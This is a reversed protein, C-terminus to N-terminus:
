WEYMARARSGRNNFAERFLSAASDPADDPTAGERYDTVQLVYEEDTDPDWELYPWVNYLQASIKLHKNMREVYTKVRLGKGKLLDATFGKDPNTEVYVAGVRYKRCLRTIECVWDKVNGPYAFGIIQYYQNEGEKRTPAAITLACYHDGDYAADVHALAGSRSYDWGSSYVPDSFLAAEDSGISLEYNAQYLFPTTTLRKKEAKEEAIFNYQSLPYKAIPCFNQIVSWADDRHWPTGIWANGKGPEIINTQIERVMEKTREREARSIRDKLTIIDDCIIKDFHLGTIGSDLGLGTISAEPTDTDKFSYKLSGERSIEPRPYAGHALKFLAQIEEREMVGAIARVVDAAAMFTKRIIAIRDNPHFLMWTVSGILTIATTKYGGRFAQLARPENSDWTYKIWESHLPTLRDKGIIRGLRHPERAIIRLAKEDIM